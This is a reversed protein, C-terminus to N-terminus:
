SLLVSAATGEAPHLLLRPHLLVLGLYAPLLLPSDTPDCSPVPADCTLSLETPPPPYALKSLM